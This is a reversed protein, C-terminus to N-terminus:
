CHYSYNRVHTRPSSTPPIQYHGSICEACALATYVVRCEVILLGRFHSRVHSRCQMFCAKVVTPKSCYAGLSDRRNGGCMFCNM